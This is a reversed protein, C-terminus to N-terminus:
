SVDHRSGEKDITTTIEVKLVELLPTIEYQLLDAILSEDQNEIAEMVSTLENQLQAMITLYADWNAPQKIQDISQVMSFLWSTAELFQQFDGWTKETAGQYFMDVLETLAPLARSLYNEAELLMNNIIEDRTAAQIQIEQITDKHEEIYNEVHNFVEEGDIVCHTFVLNQKHIENQILNVIEQVADESTNVEKSIEEFLIKM